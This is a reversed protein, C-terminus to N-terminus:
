FNLRVQFADNELEFKSKVQSHPINLFTKAEIKGEELEAPTRVDLFLVAENNLNEKIEATNVSM